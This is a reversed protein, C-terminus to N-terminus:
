VAEPTKKRNMFFSIILPLGFLGAIGFLDLGIIMAILTVLPHLGLDGGVMKPELINRVVTIVGYLVLIEIGLVTNGTIIDIIGWPILVTGVGLVPLIDLFAILLSIVLANDVGFILLGVALEAFTLGMIEAYSLVIKMLKNSIFYEVEKFYGKIKDSFFGEAFEEIDEYDFLIYFSSIILVMVSIIVDPAATVISTAASVLTKSFTLVLSKIAGFLDDTFDTLYLSIEEPLDEILNNLDKQSTAIFPEVSKKYLDPVAEFFDIVKNFVFSVVLTMTVAILAYVIVLSIVRILRNDKKFVKKTIKLAIYAFVFAFVFPLAPESVYKFFLYVLGAIVAWFAVNIIFNKREEM